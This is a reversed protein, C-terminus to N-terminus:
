KVGQNIYQNIAPKLEDAALKWIVAEAQEKTIGFDYGLEALTLRKNKDMEKLEESFM